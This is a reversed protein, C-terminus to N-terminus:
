AAYLGDIFSEALIKCASRYRFYLLRAILPNDRRLSRYMEAMDARAKATDPQRNAYFRYVNM